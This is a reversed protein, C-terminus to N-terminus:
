KFLVKLIECLKESIRGKLYRSIVCLQHELEMCFKIDDVPKCKSFKGRYPNVSIFKDEGKLILKRLTKKDSVFKYGEKEKDVKTTIDIHHIVRDISREIISRDLMLSLLSIEQPCKYQFNYHVTRINNIIKFVLPKFEKDIWSGYGTIISDSYNENEFVKKNEM